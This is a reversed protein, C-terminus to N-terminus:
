ARRLRKAEQNLRREVSGAVETLVDNAAKLYHSPNTGIPSYGTIMKVLEDPKNRRTGRGDFAELSSDPLRPLPHDLLNSFETIAGARRQFAEFQISRAIRRDNLNSHRLYKGIEDMIAKKPDGHTFHGRIALSAFVAARPHGPGMTRSATVVISNRTRFAVKFPGEGNLINITHGNNPM